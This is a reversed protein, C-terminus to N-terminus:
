MWTVTDPRPNPCRVARQPMRRVNCGFLAVRTAFSLFVPISSLQPV